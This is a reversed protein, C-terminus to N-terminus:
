GVNERGKKGRIYPVSLVILIMVMAPIIFSGSGFILVCGVSCVVGILAPVHDRRSKWQETFIVVFLATLAFDLGKTDFTILSGLLVGALSGAVWYVQNLLSIWLYVWERSLRPPVTESCVVSFTEDTLAFILYARFRNVRRYKGLMSIGYFLHRANIMLGMLFGYVPHAGGALLTVGVYQLSGAYVFTSMALVWLFGFGNAKMLIGYAMGLFLYGVMVPLTKPFAYRLAAIKRSKRM